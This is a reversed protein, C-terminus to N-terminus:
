RKSRFKNSVSDIWSFTEPLVQNRAREKAKERALKSAVKAAEARDAVIKLRGEERIRNREANTLQHDANAQAKQLLLTIEAKEAETLDKMELKKVAREQPPQPTSYM